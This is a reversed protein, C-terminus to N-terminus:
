QFINRISAERRINTHKPLYEQLLNQKTQVTTTM